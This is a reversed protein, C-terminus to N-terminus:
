RRGIHLAGTPPVWNFGLADLIAVWAASIYPNSLDRDLTKKYAWRKGVWNGPARPGARRCAATATRRRKYKKPRAL